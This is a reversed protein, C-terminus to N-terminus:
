ISIIWSMLTNHHNHHHVLLWWAMDLGVEDIIGQTNVAKQPFIQSRVARCARREPIFGGNRTQLESYRVDRGDFIKEKVLRNEILDQDVRESLPYDAILECFKREQPCPSIRSDPFRVADEPLSLISAVCLLLTTLRAPALMTHCSPPSLCVSVQRDRECQSSLATILGWWQRGCSVSKQRWDSISLNLQRCGYCEDSEDPM